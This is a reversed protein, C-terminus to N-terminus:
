LFPNRRGGRYKQGAAGDFLGVFLGCWKTVLEGSSIGTHGCRLQQRLFPGRFFSVVAIRVM